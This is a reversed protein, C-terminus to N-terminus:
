PNTSYSAINIVSRNITAGIVAEVYFSIYLLGNGGSDLDVGPSYLHTTSGDAETGDMVFVAGVDDPREFKVWVRFEDVPDGTWTFNLDITDAGTDGVQGLGTFGPPSVPTGPTVTTPGKRRLWQWWSGAPKGRVSITTRAMTDTVAHKLSVVAWDQDASYHVDNATFRILDHLEVPWFYPMEITQDAKPDAIDALIADIMAEAEAMTNIASDTAEKIVMSRRGYREVSVLNAKRIVTTAGALASDPFHVTVDNRIPARDFALNPVNMYQRPGLTFDPDVKDRGPDKLTLVFANADDSWRYRLDWGTFQSLRILADLGPEIDWGFSTVDAGSAVPTFLTVSEELELADLVIQMVDELPQGGGDVFADPASFWSDQLVAGSDRAAIEIPNANWNVKDTWGEFVTNWDSVVNYRTGLPVCATDIRIRRGADIAVGDTNFASEDMMPALSKGDWERWLKVSAQAIPADIDGSYEVSHIWNFGLRRGYQQLTDDADAIWVRAHVTYGTANRLRNLETASITRPM